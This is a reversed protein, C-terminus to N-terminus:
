FYRLLNAKERNRDYKKKNKFIVPRPFQPRNHNAEIKEITKGYATKVVKYKKAM